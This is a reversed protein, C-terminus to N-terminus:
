NNLVMKPLGRTQSNTCSACATALGDASFTGTPCPACTTESTRFTGPGCLVCGLGNYYSLAPCATCPSSFYPLPKAAAAMLALALMLLTRLM